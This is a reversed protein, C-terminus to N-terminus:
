NISIKIDDNIYYTDISSYIRNSNPDVFYEHLLFFTFMQTLIQLTIMFAINLISANDCKDITSSLIYLEIFITIIVMLFSVIVISRFVKWEVSKLRFKSVHIVSYVPVMIHFVTTFIISMIYFLKIYECSKEYSYILFAYVTCYAVASAINVKIISIINM